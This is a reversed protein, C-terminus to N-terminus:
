AVAALGFTQRKGVNWSFEDVIAQIIKSVSLRVFQPLFLFKKDYAFIEFEVVHMNLTSSVTQKHKNCNNILLILLSCYEAFVSLRQCPVNWDNTSLSCKMINVLVLVIDLVTWRTQRFWNADWLVDIRWVHVLSVHAWMWLKMCQAVGVTWLSAVRCCSQRQRLWVTLIITKMKRRRYYLCFDGMIDSCQILLLM